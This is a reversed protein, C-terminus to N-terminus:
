GIRLWREKGGERERIFARVQGVKASLGCINIVPVIDLDEAKM